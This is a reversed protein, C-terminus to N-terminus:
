IGHSKNRSRYGLDLTSQAKLNLLRGGCTWSKMSHDSDIAHSLYAGAQALERDENGTILRLQDEVQRNVMTDFEKPRVDSGLLSRLDTAVQVKLEIQFREWLVTSVVLSDFAGENHLWSRLAQLARWRVTFDQCAEAPHYLTLIVGLDVLLSPRDPFKAIVQEAMTALTAYEPTFPELRAPDNKLLCTRLGLSHTRLLLETIDAGRQEKFLLATPEAHLAEYHAAIIEASSGWGRLMFHLVGHHLPESRRSEFHIAQTELHRFVAVLTPSIRAELEKVIRLGSRLHRIVCEHDQRMLSTLVFLLCCLVMVERLQPDHPNRRRLLGSARALQETAVWHWSTRRATLALPSQMGGFVTEQHAAGLAIVAHCVAPETNAMDLVMCAWRASDYFVVEDRITRDCFFAFCRREDSTVVWRFRSTAAPTLPPGGGRKTRPWNGCKGPTEDCKVRRARCTRCGTRSRSGHQQRKRRPNM